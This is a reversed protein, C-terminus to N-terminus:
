TARRRANPSPHKRLWREIEEGEALLAAEDLTGAILAEVDNKAQCVLEAAQRFSQASKQLDSGIRQVEDPEFRPVVVALPVEHEIAPYTAGTNWRMLQHTVADHIMCTRLFYATATDKARLVSFGSSCVAAVVDDPVIAIAKRNPRVTSVLVDGGRVACKARSPADQVAVRESSITGSSIDMDSIEFYDFFGSRFTDFRVVEEVRTALEGVVVLDSRGRLSDGMRVYGPQHFWADVRLDETDALVTWGFHDDSPLQVTGWAGVILEDCRRQEDESIERLREAKRVKNGIARQLESVIKPIPVDEVHGQPLKLQGTSGNIGVELARKGWWSNLFCAIFGADCGDGPLFAFVDDSVFVATERLYVGARGVTFGGSRNIFVAESKVVSDQNARAFDESVTDPDDPQVLVHRVDKLKICHPGGPGYEPTTGQRIKRAALSSLPVCEHRAKLDALALAVEPRYSQATLRNTLMEPPLFAAHFEDRHADVAEDVPANLFHQISSTM